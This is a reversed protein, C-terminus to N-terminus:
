SQKQKFIGMKITDNLSRPNTHELHIFSPTTPVSYLDHYGYKGEYIRTPMKGGVILM